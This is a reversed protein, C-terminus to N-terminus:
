EQCESILLKKREWKKDRKKEKKKRKYAESDCVHCYSCETGQTCGKPLRHKFACPTCTGSRHLASGKSPLPFPSPPQDNEERSNTWSWSKACTRDTSRDGFLYQKMNKFIVDVSM